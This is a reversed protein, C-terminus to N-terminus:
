YGCGERLWGVVTRALSIRASSFAHDADLIVATLRRAGANRLAAALPAHHADPPAENDRGGAVLLVAKPALADARLLLDYADPDAVMASTPDGAGVRVPGAPSVSSQVARRWGERFAADTAARRALPGVNTVALGGVCQIRPDQAAATLAVWSGLSHGLLAIRGPDTRYRRSGDDTTLLQVVARVDAIENPLSMEGASGWTGRFHFALVNVGLRRIAHALDLQRDYGPYGPLLLVTPHPGEGDALYAVGYLAAGEVEARFGDVTPPHLTDTAPPDMTVPDYGVPRGAACAALLWLAALPLPVASIRPM